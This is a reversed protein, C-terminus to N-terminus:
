LRLGHPGRVGRGTIQYLIQSSGVRVYATIEEEEDADSTDASQTDAEETQAAAREEPDRSIYLTVSGSVRMATTM